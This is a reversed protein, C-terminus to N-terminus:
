RDWEFYDPDFLEPEFYTYTNRLTAVSAAFAAARPQDSNEALGNRRMMDYVARLMRQPSGTEGAPEHGNSHFVSVTVQTGPRRKM